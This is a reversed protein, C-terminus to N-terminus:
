DKCSCSCRKSVRGDAADLLKVTEERISVIFCYTEPRLLTAPPYWTAALIPAAQKLTTKRFGVRSISM